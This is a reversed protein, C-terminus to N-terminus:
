NKKQECVSRLTRKIKCNRMEGFNNSLWVDINLEKKEKGLCM